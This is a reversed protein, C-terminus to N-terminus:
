ENDQDAKQSCIILEVGSMELNEKWNPSIGDDTLLISIDEVSAFPTLDEKGFKSSDVLAYLKQTSGMIKRKLQAENLQLETMGRELTFGSCSLFAKQVFLDKIIEESLLGTVSSAKYNVVGGILIVNNSPNKAMEQAVEFGNTIVRLEKCDCLECALYYGTTSADILISDGHNILKKAERAIAQKAEHNKQYRSSFSNNGPLATESLIAGGHIRKVRGKNELTNLDNRITSESVDLTEAM